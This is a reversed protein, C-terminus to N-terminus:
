RLSRRDEMVIRGRIKALTMVMITPIAHAEFILGTPIM